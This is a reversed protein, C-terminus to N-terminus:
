KKWKYWTKTKKDYLELPDRFTGYWPHDIHTYYRRQPMGLYSRYENEMRGAYREAVKRGEFGLYGDIFGKNTGKYSDYAHGSVEHALRVGLSKDPNILPVQATIYVDSGCGEGNGASKKDHAETYAVGHKPHPDKTVIIYVNKTQDDDLERYRRGAETDSKKLKEAARQVREYQKDTVGEGQKWDINRGDPDVLKVPNNGAYHHVHMNVTNYIGGMGPLNGNRKRAEDNIPASPIYSGDYMAPDASIWRSTKPDLYRAGFYYLSTETGRLTTTTLTQRQKEQLSARIRPKRTAYSQM